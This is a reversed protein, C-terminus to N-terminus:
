LLWIGGSRVCRDLSFPLHHTVTKYHSIHSSSRLLNDLISQPPRRGEGVQEITTRVVSVSHQAKFLTRYKDPLEATGQRRM